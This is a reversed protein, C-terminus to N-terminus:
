GNDCHLLPLELKRTKKQGVNIVITQINTSAFDATNGKSSVKQHIFCCTDAILFNIMSKDQAHKCVLSENDHRPTHKLTM